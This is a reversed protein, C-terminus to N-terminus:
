VMWSDCFHDLFCSLFVVVWTHCFLDFFLTLLQWIHMWVFRM